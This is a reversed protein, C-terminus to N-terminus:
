AVLMGEGTGEDTGQGAPEGAYAAAAPFLGRRIGTLGILADERPKGAPEEVTRALAIDIRKLLEAPMAGGAHKRAAVALATLMRDIAELTAPALSRRARRLDIINIGVRLQSLNVVDSRDADDMAAIRQTLLGLRDLMLGAFAARDNLGRREATVALTAWSTKMLRRAIWAAGATRGLRTVVAAMLMGFLFAISTNAFSQFDAVYTSQLALLTATNAALAMGIFSTAPRAILFGYILFTPALAAILVEVDTIAPIIV